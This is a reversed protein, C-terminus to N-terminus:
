RKMAKMDYPFYLVSFSFGLLTFLSYPSDSLREGENPPCGDGSLYSHKTNFIVLYLGLSSVRSLYAM